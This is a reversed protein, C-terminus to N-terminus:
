ADLADSAPTTAAASHRGSDLRHSSSGSDVDHVDARDVDPAPTPTAAVTALTGKGVTSGAGASCV